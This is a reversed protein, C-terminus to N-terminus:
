RIQGRCRVLVIRHGVVRLFGPGVETPLEPDVRDPRTRGRVRAVRRRRHRGGIEHRDEERLVQAVVEVRRIVRSVVVKNEALTMGRRQQVGQVAGGARDVVLRQQRVSLAAAAKLPMRRRHQGPDIDGRSREALSQRDPHADSEGALAQITQRITDPDQRAVALQSLARHPLTELVRGHCAEVVQDRDEVDVTEPLGPLRHVAPVKAGVRPPERRYAPVRDLDVSMVDAGDIGRVGFRHGRDAARCRDHGSGDLAAADTGDGIPRAHVPLREVVKFPCQDLQARRGMTPDGDDRALWLSVDAGCRKM